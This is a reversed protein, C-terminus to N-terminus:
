VRIEIIPVSGWDVLLEGNSGSRDVIQKKMEDIDFRVPVDFQGAWTLVDSSQPYLKAAGGSGTNGTTNAAITIQNTGVATIQWLKGNLTTGLTGSVGSVGVYKGIAAGTLAAGFSLVSVAGPTFGTINQSADAGFTVLGTTTDLSYQGAGGGATVPAANRFLQATGVVPKTITRLESLAGSVYAKSLQFVGPTVTSAIVGNATTVGYDTWDKIRFGHARGKVVRFFADIAATDAVSMLRRGVEFHCRPQTWAIARSERGSHVPTVVTMYAPGVTAGFAINDPFRPSELFAM